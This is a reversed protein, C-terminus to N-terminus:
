ESEEEGDEDDEWYDCDMCQLEDEFDIGFPCDIDYGCGPM